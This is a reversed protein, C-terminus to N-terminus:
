VFYQCIALPLAIGVRSEWLKAGIAVKVQDPDPALAGIGRGVVMRRIGAAAIKHAPFVARSLGQDQGNSQRRTIHNIGDGLVTTRDVSLHLQAEVRLLARNDGVGLVVM